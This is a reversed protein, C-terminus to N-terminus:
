SGTIRCSPLAAKEEVRLTCLWSVKGANTSVSTVLPDAKYMKNNRYNSDVKNWWKRGGYLGTSLVVVALSMAVVGRM